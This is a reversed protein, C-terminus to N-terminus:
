VTQLIGWVQVACGNTGQCKVAKGATYSWFPAGGSIKQQSSNGGSTCQMGNDIIRTTGDDDFLYCIATTVAAGAQGLNIGYVHFVQGAPVTLVTKVTGDAASYYYKAAATSTPLGITSSGSVTVNAQAGNFFFSM